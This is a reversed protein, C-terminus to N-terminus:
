KEGKSFQGFRRTFNAVRGEKHIVRQKGTYFPHSKSSVEITFYPYTNGDEWEITRDTQLTSGILFYEDVSTDHFVVTRYEPHINPKM